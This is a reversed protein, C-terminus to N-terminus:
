ADRRKTLISGVVLPVAAWAVLALLGQLPTLLTVGQQAAGSATLFANAANSPLVKEIWDAVDNNIFVLVIPVVFVLAVITFIAAATHRLVAGIGLAMLAILVLVVVAGGLIRQTVWEGLDAQMGEGALVPYTVAYSLGVSLVGVLLAVVAVVLTKAVMVPLRTPVASFTARIMGSSYENTIVLVGLVALILEGFAVGSTVLEAPEFTGGMQASIEPDDAFTVATTAGLLAILVVAVVTSGAVWWTSRLTWLKLWESRLTRGFTVRHRPAATRAQAPTTAAAATM